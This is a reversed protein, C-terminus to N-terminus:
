LAPDSPAEGTLTGVTGLVAAEPTGLSDFWHSWETMTSLQCLKDFPSRPPSVIFQLFNLSAHLCLLFEQAIYRNNIDIDSGDSAPAYADYLLSESTDETGVKERSRSSPIASPPPSPSETRLRKVSNSIQTRPM